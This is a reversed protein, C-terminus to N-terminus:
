ERIRLHGGQYVCFRGDIKEIFNKIIRKLVEVKEEGTADELRLVLVGAHDMGSHYVLEGFDKDMTLVMRGESVALRLIDADTVRVDIDRVSKPDYGSSKLWEEVKKGVGLDILFKM